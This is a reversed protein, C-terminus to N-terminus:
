EHGADEKVLHPYACDAVSEAERATPHATINNSENEITFTKM